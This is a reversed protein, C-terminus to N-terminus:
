SSWAVWRSVDQWIMSLRRRQKARVCLLLTLMSNCQHHQLPLLARTQPNHAQVIPRCPTQWIRKDGILMQVVEVQGHTNAVELATVTDESGVRVPIPQSPNFQNLSLIDEVRSLNGTRCADIFQQRLVTRSRDRLGRYLRQLQMAGRMRARHQQRAAAVRLFLQIRQAAPSVTLPTFEPINAFQRRQEIEVM